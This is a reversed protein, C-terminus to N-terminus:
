YRSVALKTSRASLLRGYDNGAYPFIYKYGLQYPIAFQRCFHVDEVLSDQTIVIGFKQLNACDDGIYKSNLINKIDKIFEKEKM